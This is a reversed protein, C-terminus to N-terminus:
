AIGPNDTWSLEAAGGADNDIYVTHWLLTTRNKLQLEGNYIRVKDGGLFTMTTTLVISIIPRGYSDYLQM